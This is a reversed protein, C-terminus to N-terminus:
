GDLVMNFTFEEGAGPSVEIAKRKPFLYQAVEKACQVRLNMDVKKDQAIEAMQVVPNYKPFKKKLLESIEETRKNPTGQKRGGTKQGGPKRGAM